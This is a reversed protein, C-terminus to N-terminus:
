PPPYGGKGSLFFDKKKECQNETLSFLFFQNTPPRDHMSVMDDVVLAQSKTIMESIFLKFSSMLFTIANTIRQVNQRELLKTKTRNLEAFFIWRAQIKQFIQKKDVRRPNQLIKTETDARRPMRLGATNLIAVWRCSEIAGRHLNGASKGSQM